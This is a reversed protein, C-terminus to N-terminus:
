ILENWWQPPSGSFYFFLVEFLIIREYHIILSSYSVRKEECISKRYFLPTEYDFKLSKVSELRENIIKLENERKKKM